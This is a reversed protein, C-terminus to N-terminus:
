SHDIVKVVRLDDLGLRETLAPKIQWQPLVFESGDTKKIVYHHLYRSNVINGSYVPVKGICDKYYECHESFGTEVFGEEYVKVKVSLISWALMLGLTGPIGFFLCLFVRATEAKLAFLSICSMMFLSLLLLLVGGATILPCRIVKVPKQDEFPNYKM